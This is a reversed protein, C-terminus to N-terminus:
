LNFWYNLKLVLARNRPGWIELFYNDSYVLYIDSMPKFRWQFRSNINFNNDQTNYQLFTTWYLSKSFDIEFKPGILYLTGNGHFEPFTLDNRVFNLAFNGWPQIRYKVGVTYQIRSGGYFSGFLIGGSFSLLKREDTKGRLDAFRFQFDGPELTDGAVFSFPFLLKVQSNTLALDVQATNQFKLTYDLEIDHGLNAFHTDMDWVNRIGVQHALILPNEPYFTYAFRSFWHNYGVAITTDRRADYHEQASFFGMDSVYNNGIGALNSYVSINRDDYGIGSNYFYNGSKKGPSISLGYGVFTQFRGDPTRYLFDMGPVRDYDPTKSAFNQRNFFYGKIISRAFVQQHFALATYNQPDFSGSKRTQLNMAGIRLRPNINGSLRAGYLIPIPNGNDDLGIKRSFFPRMPPIGFDEFIDSNDLFFLRKEPFRIDFLTLNTVQEDVDVQSFDPNVTLDLNLNSTVGIKADLGAEKGAHTLINNENDRSVSGLIYPIISINSAMKHPPRDWRLIGTYGLDLEYFELPVPTWTEITNSKAILRAFNIGWVSQNENYRLTKFPIAMEITYRDPYDRVKSFWKNDWALNIGQRQQGPRLQDGKRGTLGSILFETQVGAPNVGFAYGNTRENVPDFVVEFGDGKEFDVDRKLTQIVYHNSGYCTIGLYIFNQDYAMKVVTQVSPDARQNDVPYSMWFNGASDADQWTKENLEGDLVIKDKVPYIALQNKERFEPNYSRSPQASLDNAMLLNGFLVILGSYIYIKVILINM